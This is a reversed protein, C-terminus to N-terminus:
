MQDFFSNQEKQARTNVEIPSGVIETTEKRRSIYKLQLYIFYIKKKKKQAVYLQDM